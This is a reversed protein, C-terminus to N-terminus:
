PQQASAAGRVQGPEARPENVLPRLGAAIGLWGLAGRVGESYGGGTPIPPPGRHGSKRSQEQRRQEQSRREQGAGRRRGIRLAPATTSRTPAAVGVGVAGVPRGPGVAGANPRVRSRRTGRPCAGIMRAAGAGVGRRWASRVAGVRRADPPCRGVRGATDGAVRSTANAAALASAAVEHPGSAVGAAARAVDDVMNNRQRTTAGVGRAVHLPLSARCRPRLVPRLPDAARASPPPLGAWPFRFAM